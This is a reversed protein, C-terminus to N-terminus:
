IKAKLFLSYQNVSEREVCIGSCYGGIVISCTGKMNNFEGNM